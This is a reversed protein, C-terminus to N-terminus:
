WKGPAWATREGSPSLQGPAPAGPPSAGPAGPRFGPLSSLPSHAQAVAAPSGSQAQAAGRHAWGLTMGQPLSQYLRPDAAHPAGLSVRVGHPAGQPAPAYGPLLSLPSQGPSATRRAAGGGGQPSGDPSSRYLVPSGDAGRPASARGAVPGDPSSRYLVPSGDAGRPASARGAVPGVPSPTPSGGHQRLQVQLPAPQGPALAAASGSVFLGAPAGAQQAARVGAARRAGGSSHAGLSAPPSAKTGASFHVAPAVLQAGGAGGAGGGARPAGAAAGDGPPTRRHRPPSGQPRLIPSTGARLHSLPSGAADRPQQGGPSALAAPPPAAAGAAASRGASPGHQPAAPVFAAVTVPAAPVRDTATPLDGALAGLLGAVSRPAQMARGGAAGRDTGPAAVPQPARAPSAASPSPRAGRFVGAPPPPTRAAPAGPPSPPPSAAAAASWPSTTSPGLGAAHQHPQAAPSAPAMKEGAPRAWRMEPTPVPDTPSRPVRGSGAAGASAPGTLPLQAPEPRRPSLQTFAKPRMTAPPTSTLARGPADPAAAAPSQQPLSPVVRPREAPGSRSGQEHAGGEAEPPTRPMLAAPPQAAQWGAPKGSAASSFSWAGAARPAPTETKAEGGAARATFVADARAATEGLPTEWKAPWPERARPAIPHTQAECTQEKPPAPAAPLEPAGMGARPPEAAAAPRPPSPGVPKSSKKPPSRDQRAVDGGARPACAGGADGGVVVVVEAPEAKAPAAAPEPQAAGMAPRPPADSFLALEVGRAGSLGHRTSERLRAAEMEPVEPKSARMGAEPGRAGAVAAQAAGAASPANLVAAPARVEARSGLALTIEGVEAASATGTGSATGASALSHGSRLRVAARANVPVATGSHLARAAQPHLPLGITSASTAILPVAERDVPREEEESGPAPHGLCCGLLNGCPLLLPMLYRPGLVKELEVLVFLALSFGVIRVWAFWGLPANSFFENVTPAYTLVLQLAVTVAVAVWCWVNDFLLGLRLSSGRLYRCNLAYAIEACVLMNFAAARARRVDVDDAIAGAVRQAGSLSHDTPLSHHGLEWWFNLLVQSLSAAHGILVPHSVRRTWKTRPPPPPPPSPVLLVM